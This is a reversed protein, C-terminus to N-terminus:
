SSHTASNFFDHLNSSESLNQISDTSVTSAHALPTALSGRRKKGRCLRVFFCRRGGGQEGVLPVPRAENCLPLAPTSPLPTCPSGAHSFIGLHLLRYPLFELGFGDLGRDSDM